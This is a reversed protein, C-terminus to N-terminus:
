SQSETTTKTGTKAQGLNRLVGSLIATLPVAAILGISGAFARVAETAVLDRNIIQVFPMEYAMFLLLLPLTPGVYALILTNAMTGMVDRGVNMASKIQDRISIAPNVQYVEHSAAAISMAVDMVAGLAGIIIGAFLLGRVDIPSGEIFALMQAEESSFGTLNVANGVFYALLGAVLVGGVTGAAASLTKSHRGGLAGLTIVTILAAAVVTTPIPSYGKLLLPLLVFFVVAVTIGLTVVTILGKKRGIVIILLVFIAALLYLYHDRAYDQVYINRLTGNADIEGWLLLKMGEELKLDFYPHGTLQNLLKHREGKYAGSTIEVEALQELIFFGAEDEPEFNDVTLVRGRLIIAETDDSFSPTGAADAPVAAFFLIISLLSLFIKKFSIRM